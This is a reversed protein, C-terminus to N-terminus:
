PITVKAIPISSVGFHIMNFNPNSYIDRQDVVYHSGSLVESVYYWGTLLNAGFGPISDAGDSLNISDVRYTGAKMPLYPNTTATWKTGGVNVLDLTTFNGSDNVDFLWLSVYTVGNPGDADLTVTIDYDGWMGNPAYTIQPSKLLHPASTNESGGGNGGGGGGGGCAQISLVLMM